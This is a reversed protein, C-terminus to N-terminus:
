NPLFPCLCSLSCLFQCFLFFTGLLNIIFFLQMTISPCGDMWPINWLLCLLLLLLLYLRVWRCFIYFICIITDNPHLMLHRIRQTGRVLFCSLCSSQHRSQQIPDVCLIVQVKVLRRIGICVHRVSTLSCSLQRRSGRGCIVYIRRCRELCPFCIVGIRGCLRCGLVISISWLCRNSIFRVVLVFVSCDIVICLFTYLHVDM